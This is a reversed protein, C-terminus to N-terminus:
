RAHPRNPARLCHLRHLGDFLARGMTLRRDDRPESDRIGTLVAHIGFTEARQFKEDQCDIDHVIEAIASLAPDDLAFADLLTEFTCRDGQHTFEANFMDYRVENASPRYGRSGDVFKFKAKPDIFRRILWASAIRDVFVGQRTVWTRGPTVTAAGTAVRASERSAVSEALADLSLRAESASPAEFFDTRKVTALTRELGVLVTSRADGDENAMAERAAETLARYDEERASQFRGVLEEDSLGGLLAASCVILEADDEALERRLWEVDESTQERAPLAYVGNKLAIAGLRQLRRQLKVRLYDPKPPLQPLLLLWSMM